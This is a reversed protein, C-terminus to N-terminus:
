RVDMRPFSNIREFGCKGVFLLLTQFDHKNDYSFQYLMIIRRTELVIQMAHCRLFRVIEYIIFTHTLKGNVYIDKIIM